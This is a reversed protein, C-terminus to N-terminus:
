HSILLKEWHDFVTGSSFIAQTVRWKGECASSKHFVSRERKKEDQSAVNM